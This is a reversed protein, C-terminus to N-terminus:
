AAASARARPGPDRARTAASSRPRAREASAAPTSCRAPPPRTSGTGACSSRPRAARRSSGSCRSRARRATAMPTRLTRPPPRGVPRAPRPRRSRPPRGGLARVDERLRRPDVGAALLVRVGVGDRERLLALLVHEPGPATSGLEIAERLAGALAAQAAPTIPLHPPSPGAPLGVARMVQARAGALTVGAATLARAGVEEPESLVGLLLHETGVHDHRLTRAEGEAAGVVRRLPESLEEAM